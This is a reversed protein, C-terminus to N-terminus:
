GVPIAAFEELAKRHKALDKRVQVCWTHDVTISGPVVTSKLFARGQNDSQEKVHALINRTRIVDKDFGKLTAQLPDLRAKLDAAKTKDGEGGNLVVNCAKVRDDIVGMLFQYKKGFDYIGRDLVRARFLDGKAAFQAVLIDEILAEIDTTEAIVLGRMIAPLQVRKLTLDILKRVKDDFGTRSTRYVGDQAQLVKTYDEDATYFLIETFKNKDRIHTVVEDGKLGQLNYDVAILDPDHKDLHATAGKWDPFLDVILGLGLDDLYDKISDQMPAVWEPSDDIWLIEYQMM